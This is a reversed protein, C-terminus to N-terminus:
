PLRYGSVRIILEGEKPNRTLIFAGSQTEGGSLFDIQQTGVEEVEGNTSFEAVVEVSEATEGGSNKVTFPVYFQEEVQRIQSDTTASIIAPGTERTKWSYLVLAIVLGLIFLAISFSVWEAPSRPSIQQQQASSDSM